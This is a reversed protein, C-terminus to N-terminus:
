KVTLPASVSGVRGTVFDEVLFRVMYQGAPLEFKGEYFMGLKEIRAANAAGIHADFAKQATGAITGDPQKAVAIVDFKMHNNDSGNVTIAAPTLMVDFSATTKTAGPARTQDKWRVELPLATSDLPSLLANRIDNKRDNADNKKAVLYGSRARVQMGSGHVKVKLDHWGPQADRALYFGLLYYSSSDSSAERFSKSLDNTNFFAKGGTMEALDRFTEFSANQASLQAISLNPLALKGAGIYKAGTSAPIMAANVFGRADVPYVAFNAQSLAQWMQQYADLDDSVDGNGGVAAIQSNNDAFSFPFGATVWILSKRGPVGAYAQAIQTLADYTWRIALQKQGAVASQSVTDTLANLQTVESQLASDDAPITQPNQESFASKGSLTSVASILVSTETTFDHIVKLGAPTLAVVSILADPDLGQSLFKLMQKRARVQDTIPTNITDLALVVLRRASAAGRDNTYVSQNLKPTVVRESNAVVEEFVAITREGGAEGVSFAEKKLNTVHAGRHDRIIVPVLVLESHSSFTLLPQAAADAAGQQPLRSQANLLTCHLLALAIFFSALMAKATGPQM